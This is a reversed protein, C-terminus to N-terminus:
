AERTQGGTAWALFPARPIRVRHGIICVPFGLASADERAQLNIYYPRCGLVPAAETPTIMAKDSRALAALAEAQTM